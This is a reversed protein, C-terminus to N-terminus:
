IWYWVLITAGLLWCYPSFLHLRGKRVIRLLAILAVYGVIGAIVTGAIISGLSMGTQIGGDINLALAGLIAPISLLFSYRGALQRDLGLFLMVAITAGSRSIGPMIALGQALGICLADVTTMRDIARGPQRRYRTLWLFTGTVMLMLGVIQVTGFIDEVMRHFCLGLIGTPISGAVILWAMRINANEAYVARFGGSPKCAVPLRALDKLIAVIDERFVVCVAVLTGVHLSIDFLLEPEHLGFINQLVVLHGSSSVPLFETLGQIAGLLIAQLTEM